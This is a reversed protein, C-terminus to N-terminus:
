HTFLDSKLGPDPGARDTRLYNPEGWSHANSLRASRSLEQLNYTEVDSSSTTLFIEKRPTCTAKPPFPEQTRSKINLRGHIVLFLSDIALGVM